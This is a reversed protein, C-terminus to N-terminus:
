EWDLVAKLCLDKKHAMLHIARDFDNYSFRHTIIQEFPILGSIALEVAESWGGASANSGVLHLERHLLDNWLFSAQATDYDGIFLIKGCRPALRLAMDVASLSGSAEIISPYGPSLTLRLSNFAPPTLNHFDFVQGAGLQLALNLRKAYGGVMDVSPFGRLKLVTLCLLGIPGDGFIMVPAPPEPHFRALGRLCVALPEIMAAHHAPFNDPLFHLNAALTCFYQAYGGLYEFGVEKGDEMINEAVCLRGSIGPEVEEGVADVVGSWEHGPVAPFSTRQWGAIMKLDTTCISVSRTRIRVKGPGPQPLPLDLLELQNPGTNVIAKM